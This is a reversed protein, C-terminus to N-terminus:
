STPEQQRTSITPTGILSVLVKVSTTEGGTVAMELKLLGPKPIPIGNYTVIVRSRLKDQFDIRVPGRHLDMGDLTMKLEAAPTASDTAQRELLMMVTMKPVFLPFGPSPIEEILNIASVTNTEADRLVTEACLMLQTKIM